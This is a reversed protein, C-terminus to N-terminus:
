GMAEIFNTAEAIAQEMEAILEATASEINDLENELAGIARANLNHGLFLVQDQFLSLVPTMTEEARRMATMVQGYQAQTDSLLEESRRRLNPDTYDALEGQWEAFLDEAVREVADIRSSVRRARSDSRQYATNIRGYMEELDGGNFSVVSRYQELASAFEDRAELQADRANEVRNVLIDRKEIGFTELTSYYMQSCACLALIAVAAFAGRLVRARIPGIVSPQM